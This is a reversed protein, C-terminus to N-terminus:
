KKYFYYHEIYKKSIMDECAKEGSSKDTFDAYVRYYKEEKQVMVNASDYNEVMLQAVKKAYSKSGILGFKIHTNYERIEAVSSKNRRITIRYVKKTGDEATVKIYARNVGTKLKLKNKEVLKTCAKDRYLEWVAKDSVDTKVTISSVKNTVSATINTGSIVSKSPVVMKDINCEESKRVADTKIITFISFKTIQFQIGYVGKKYEM